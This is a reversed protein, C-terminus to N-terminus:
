GCRQKHREIAELVPTELSHASNLNFDEARRLSLSQLKTLREKDDLLVWIARALAKVNKTPVLVGYTNGKLIEAPGSPCDTSIVPAGVALAEVIVRCFGEYRSSSVFLDCRGMWAYPNEQFGLLRVREAVGLSRALHELRAREPGDGLIVLDHPLDNDKLAAYARILLDFGKQHDLRGAALIFPRQPATGPLPQTAAARVEAVDILNYATRVRSYLEPVLAEIEGKVGASVGVALTLRPYIKKVLQRHILSMHELHSPLSNQVLGLSPKDALKAALVALYTSSAELAGVVVDANKASSLLRPLVLHLHRAWARKPVGYIVKVGKLLTDWYPGVNGGQALFLVPEFRELDLHRLISLANLVAGNKELKVLIFLVRIRGTGSPQTEAKQEAQAEAEQEAPTSLVVIGTRNPASVDHM